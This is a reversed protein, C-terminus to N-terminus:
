GHRDHYITIMWDIWVISAIFSYINLSQIQDDNGDRLSYLLLSTLSVHAHPAPIYVIHKYTASHYSLFALIIRGSLWDIGFTTEM